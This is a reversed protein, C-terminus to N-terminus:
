YLKETFEAAFLAQVIWDLFMNVILFNSLYVFLVDCQSLINSFTCILSELFNTFNHKKDRRIELMGICVRVFASKPQAAVPAPVM